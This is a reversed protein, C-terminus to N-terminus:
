LAMSWVPDNDIQDGVSFPHFGIPAMGYRAYFRQARHNDAWVSLALHGAGQDRATAIAWDMLAPAVGVGQWAKLVYLQKLEAAGEPAPPLSSAGLRAFGAITDGDIALRIRVGPAGIQAPLGAPGFADALFAAMDAATYFPGFTDVFCRTAMEALAPGDEPRADRYDIMGM